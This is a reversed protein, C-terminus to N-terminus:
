WLTLQLRRQTFVLVIRKFINVLALFGAPMGSVQKETDVNEEEEKGKEVVLLITFFALLSVGIKLQSIDFHLDGGKPTCQFITKVLFVRKFFLDRLCLPSRIFAKM